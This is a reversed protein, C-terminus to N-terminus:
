DKYIKDGILPHIDGLNGEIMFEDRGVCSFVKGEGLLPEYTLLEGNGFSPGFSSSSFIGGNFDDRSKVSYKNTLNLLM